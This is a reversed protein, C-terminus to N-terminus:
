MPIDDSDIEADRILTRLMKADIGMKELLRVNLRHCIAWQRSKLSGWMMKSYMFPINEDGVRIYCLPKGQLNKGYFAAVIGTKEVQSVDPNVVELGLRKIANARLTKNDRLKLDGKPGKVFFLRHLLSLSDPAALARWAINASANMDANRVSVHGDGHQAIFYVGGERPRYLRLKDDLNREQILKMAEEYARATMKENYNSAKETMYRCSALSMHEARFGPSSDTYDMKSTYAAYTELVPVGFVESLLQKVKAVIQRHAWRMLTTNEERSHDISTKYRSLNELVVFDVPSRSPIKEYSGHYVDRGREDTKANNKTEVLKVGLAQAVIEHAIQHVREERLNEIKKLIEPCPNSVKEDLDESRLKEENGPQNSLIRNMSQLCQRLEEIQSLRRVSLGGMFYHHVKERKKVRELRMQGSGIIGPLSVPQWTWKYRQQPLMSNTVKEAVSPLQERLRTTASRLRKEVTATDGKELALRIEPLFDEGVKSFYDRIAELTESKKENLTLKYVWSSFKRCRSLLRCFLRLAEDNLQAISILADERKSFWPTLGFSAFTNILAEKEESKAKRVGHIKEKLSASKGEGTLKILGQHVVAGYWAQGDTFGICRNPIKRGNLSKIEDEKSVHIISYAAAYRIGLDISLVNFGNGVVDDCMWWQTEDKHADTSPWKLYVKEDSSGHFQKKWIASKGVKEQLQEVNLAVSFNLYCLPVSQKNEAQEYKIYLNVAPTRELEVLNPPLSLAEMMPPLWTISQKKKDSVIWNATNHGLEDREFRPASFNIEAPVFEWRSNANRITVIVRIKEKGGAIYKCDRSALSSYLLQRPSTVPNAASVRVPQGYQSKKNHLSQWLSFDRLINHSRPYKDSWDHWIIRYEDKTLADFLSQSGFRRNSAQLERVKRALSERDGDGAQEMSLWIKRLEDYGQITRNSIHYETIKDLSIEEVLKKMAEFRPDGGLIVGQENEVDETEEIRNRKRTEQIGNEIYKLESVIDAVMVDREQSKLVFAHLTELAEAFALIEWNKLFCEWNPLATVGKYVYGREGRALIFPDDSLPYNSIPLEPLKEKLLISSLVAASVKGPFLMFVLAAYKKAMNMNGGGNKMVDCKRIIHVHDKWYNVATEFEQKEVGEPIPFKEVQSIAFNLEQKLELDTWFANKQCKIGAWTLQMDQVFNEYVSEHHSPKSLLSVLERRKECAVLWDKSLPFTPKTDNFCLWPTITKSAKTIAGDGKGITLLYQTIYPLAGKCPCDHFMMDAIEEFTSSGSIGLCRSISERLNSDWIKKVQESFSALIPNDNHEAMISLAVLHYNVSDQFLEFTRILAEHAEAESGTDSNEFKIATVRGQYIRTIPSM